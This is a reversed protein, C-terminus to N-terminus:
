DLKVSVYRQGDDPDGESGRAEQCSWSSIDGVKRGGQFEIMLGIELAGYSHQEQRPSGDDNLIRIVAKGSPLQEREQRM